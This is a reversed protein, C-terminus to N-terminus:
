MASKSAESQWAVSYFKNAAWFDNPTITDMGLAKKPVFPINPNIAKQAFYVLESCFFSKMGSLIMGFDYPKGKHTLAWEAALKKEQPNLYNCDLLCVYDKGMFFTYLDVEQVGHTVAEIITGSPTVMGVHSWFGPIFMNALEGDTRSLIIQGCELVQQCDHFDKGVILKRSYPMHIVSLKPSIWTSLKLLIKRITTM